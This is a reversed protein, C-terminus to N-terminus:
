SIRQFLGAYYQFNYGSIGDSSTTIVGCSRWTGPLTYTQNPGWICFSAERNSNALIGCARLSSGAFNVGPNLPSRSPEMLALAFTGVAHLAGAPAGAPGQPGQPGTAGTAGKAGAPGQPGTAGTAGKAGAPGQPGQPGTLGTDGKDGKDGKAGAPGQPGAPGTAGTAGRA